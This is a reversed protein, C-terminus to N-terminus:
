SINVPKCRGVADRSWPVSCEWRVWPRGKAPKDVYVYPGGHACNGPHQVTPPPGSVAPQAVPGPQPLPQGVTSPPAAVAAPFTAQVNALAVQEATGGFASTFTALYNAGAVPGLAREINASFEDYNDGRITHLNGRSDKSTSSFAAEATV